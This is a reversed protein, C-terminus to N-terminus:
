EGESDTLMDPTCFMFRHDTRGFTPPSEDPNPYVPVEHDNAYCAAWVYERQDQTMAAWMNAAVDAAHDFDIGTYRELTEAVTLWCYCKRDVVQNGCTDCWLMNTVVAAERNALEDRIAQVGNFPMSRLTLMERLADSSLENIDMM